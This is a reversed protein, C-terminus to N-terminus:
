EGTLDFERHYIIYTEMGTFIVAVSRLKSRNMELFAKSVSRKHKPIDAAFLFIQQLCSYRSCVPIDAAFLFIQQLCSYRSWVPIDAAFLFIQQL